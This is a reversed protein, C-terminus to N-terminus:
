LVNIGTSDSFLLSNCVFFCEHGGDFSIYLVDKLNSTTIVDSLSHHHNFVGQGSGVFQLKKIM